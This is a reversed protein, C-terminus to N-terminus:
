ISCQTKYGVRHGPLFRTGQILGTDFGSMYQSGGPVRRSGAQHGPIQGTGQILGTGSGARHVPIM